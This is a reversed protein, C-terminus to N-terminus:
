QLKNKIHLLKLKAKLHIKDVEELRKNIEDIYTNNATAEHKKRNKEITKDTHLRLEDKCADCINYGYLESGPEMCLACNETM